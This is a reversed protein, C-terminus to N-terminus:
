IRVRNFVATVNQDFVKSSKSTLNQLIALAARKEASRTARYRARYIWDRIRGGRSTKGVKKAITNPIYLMICGDYYLYELNVLKQPISRLTACGSCNLMSLNALEKPISQVQECGSCNLMTLNVLEKPISQLATCGACYLTTLNALEKPISQLMVCGNCYLHELNGLEKPISQM